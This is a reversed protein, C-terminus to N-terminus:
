EGERQIKGKFSRKWRIFIRYVVLAAAIIFVTCVVIDYIKSSLKKELIKDIRNVIKDIVSYTIAFLLACLIIEIISM